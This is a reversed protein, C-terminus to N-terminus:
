QDGEITYNPVLASSQYGLDHVAISGDLKGSTGKPLMQALGVPDDAFAFYSKLAQDRSTAIDHFRVLTLNEFLYRQSCDNQM